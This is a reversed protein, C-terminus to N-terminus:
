GESIPGIRVEFADLPTLLANPTFGVPNGNDPDVAFMAVKFEEFDIEGTGDTDCMRFYRLAKTNADFVFIALVAVSSFCLPHSNFRSKINSSQLFRTLVAM